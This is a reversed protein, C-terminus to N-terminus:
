HVRSLQALHVELDWLARVLVIESADTDELLTVRSKPWELRMYLRSAASDILGILHQSLADRASGRLAECARVVWTLTAAPEAQGTLCRTVADSVSRAM